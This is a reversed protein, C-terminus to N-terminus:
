HQGKLIKLNNAANKSSPNIQLARSFSSIALENEGMNAYIFGIDNYINSVKKYHDKQYNFSGADYKMMLEDIDYNEIIEIVKLSDSPMGTFDFLKEKLTALYYTEMTPIQDLCQNFYSLAEPWRKLEKYSRGLFIYTNMPFPHTKLAENFYQIAMSFDGKSFCVEGLNYLVLYRRQPNKKLAEQLSIVAKDFLGLMSYCVALNTLADVSEPDLKYAELYQGAALKYQGNSILVDGYDKLTVAEAKRGQQEVKKIAHPFLTTFTTFGLWLGIIVFIFIQVWRDARDKHTTKEKM